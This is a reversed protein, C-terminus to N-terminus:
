MGQPIRQPAIRAELLDDGQERRLLLEGSIVRIPLTRGGPLPKLLLRRLYRLTQAQPSSLRQKRRESVFAKPTIEQKSDETRERKHEQNTRIRSIRAIQRASPQRGAGYDPPQRVFAPQRLHIRPECTEQM